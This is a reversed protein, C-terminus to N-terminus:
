AYQMFIQALAFKGNGMDYIGIAVADFDPNLMNRRHGESNYLATMASELTIFDKALNEGTYSYLYIYETDTLISQYSRGDPRTHSWSVTSEYARTRAGELFYGEFALPKVGNEKRLNNLMDFAQKEMDSPSSTTVPKASAAPTTPATTPATTAAETPATTAETSPETVKCTTEPQAAPKTETQAAESTTDSASTKATTSAPSKTVQTEQTTAAAETTSAKTYEAPTASNHLKGAGVAVVAFVIVLSIVKLMSKIKNNM